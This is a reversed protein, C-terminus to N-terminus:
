GQILSLSACDGEQYQCCKNFCTDGEVSHAKGKPQVQAGLPGCTGFGAPAGSAGPHHIQLATNSQEGKGVGVACGAGAGRNELVCQWQICM